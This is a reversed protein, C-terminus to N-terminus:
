FMDGLLLLQDLLRHGPGERLLRYQARGGQGAGEVRAEVQGDVCVGHGGGHRGDHM